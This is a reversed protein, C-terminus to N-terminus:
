YNSEEIKLNKMRMISNNVRISSEEVYYIIRIIYNYVFLISFLNLLACYCVEVINLIKIKLHFDNVIDKEDKLFYIFFLEEIYIIVHNINSSLVRYKEDIFYNIIDNKNKINNKIKYFDRYYNSIEKAYLNVASEIGNSLLYSNSYKVENCRKHELCFDIKSANKNKSTDLLFDYLYSITKYNKIRYNYIYSVNKNIATFYEETKNLDDYIDANPLIFLKKIHNWYTIIFNYQSTLMKFDSIIYRFNSIFLLSLVIKYIYYSLFIFTFIIFIIILYKVSNLITIRTKFFINEITIRFNNNGNKNLILEDFINDKKIDKKNKIENLIEGSKREINNIINSNNSMINSNITNTINSKKFILNTSSNRSNNMNNISINSINNLEKNNLIHIEENLMKLSKNNCNYNSNNLLNNHSISNSLSANILTDNNKKSKKSNIKKKNKNLQRRNNKNLHVSGNREEEIINNLNINTIITFNEIEKDNKLIDLNKPSFENLLLIFNLVRKKALLNFYKNNFSYNQIQSLDMFLYLINQFIYKNSNILFLLNIGFFFIFSLLAIMELIIYITTTKESFDNLSRDFSNELSVFYKRLVKDYNNYFYYCLKIFNGYVPTARRDITLYKGLLLNECDKIDNKNFEHKISDIIRYTILALESNYDNYFLKNEWNVTIKNSILPEYLKSFDENLEIKFDTYYRIFLQHSKEINKGILLLLEKNDQLVNQNSINVLVYFISLICSNIYVFQTRQYYNYYITDFIKDNKNVLSTQYKLTIICTILLVFICSLLVTCLSYKSFKNVKIRKRFYNSINNNTTILNIKDDNLNFEEKIKMMTTKTMKIKGIKDITNSINYISKIEENETKVNKLEYLKYDNNIELINEVLYMEIKCLYFITDFILRPEIIVNFYIKTKALENFKNILILYDNYLDQSELKDQEYHSIKETIKRLNNLYDVKDVRFYISRANFKKINKDNFLNHLTKLIFKNNKEKEKLVKEEEDEDSDNNEDNIIYKHIIHFNNNQNQHKFLNKLIYEKTDLVMYEKINRIKTLEKKFSNNIDNINIGFLERLEINFEKILALSLSINKKFNQNISIINLNNNLYFTIENSKQNIEITSIILINQNIGIQLTANIKSNIMYGESDFVYIHKDKFINNQYLIFFQKIINNHPEDLDKILLVGINNNILYKQNYNLKRSFNESIFSIKGGKTYKLLLYYKNETVNYNENYKKELIQYTEQKIETSYLNHNSIFSYFISLLKNPIKGDWFYDAFLFIKILFEYTLKKNYEELEYLYKKINSTYKIERSLYVILENLLTKSLYPSHIYKIENYIEDIKIITSNEYNDKHRIIDIFKTSYYIMIKIIKKIKIILNFYKKMEMEKIINNLNKTEGNYKAFDFKKIKQVLADKIYKDMLEYIYILENKSLNKYNYHLLTQLISYSMIPNNKYINFHVSLLIALEYNNQFNYNILISEIYYNLQKKLDDIFNIEIGKKIKNEIKIIKCACNYNLCQKQHEIIYGQIKCLYKANNNEFLDRIFLISIILNNDFPYNYPNKYFLRKNIIKIMIKQYIKNLFFFLSISIIIKSIIYLILEKSKENKISFLFLIMEIFISVFCFEGIFSLLSNLINDYNYLKFSIFYVWLLLLFIIISYILRWIKNIDEHLYYQLPHFLSFNQFIILIFLKLKPIKMKFPFSKDAMPRNAFLIFFYNNINYIIIFISNLVIISEHFLRNIKSNKKIVFYNPLFDIYYIFSLFEIIYSFFIYVIHNLIRFILREKINYVENIHSYKVQYILRFLDLLRFICMFYIFICIIIYAFHSLQLKEVFSFPTLYRLWNSLYKNKDFDPIFDNCLIILSMSSVIIYLINIIINHYGLLIMIMDSLIDKGVKKHMRLMALGYKNKENLVDSIEYKM